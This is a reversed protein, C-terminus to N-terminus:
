DSISNKFGGGSAAAFPFVSAAIQFDFRQSLPHPGNAQSYSKKSIKLNSLWHGLHDPV